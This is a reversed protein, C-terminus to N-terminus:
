SESEAVDDVNPHERTEQQIVPESEMPPALDHEPSKIVGVNDETPKEIDIIITENSITAVTITGPESTADWVLRTPAMNDLASETIKVQGGLHQVTFALFRALQQEQTLPM